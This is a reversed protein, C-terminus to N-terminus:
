QHFNLKWHVELIKRCCETYIEEYNKIESITRKLSHQDDQFICDAVTNKIRWNPMAEVNMNLLTVADDRRSEYPRFTDDTSSSGTSSRSFSGPKRFESSKFISVEFMSTEFNPVKFISTEVPFCDTLLM